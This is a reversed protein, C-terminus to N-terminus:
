FFWMMKQLVTPRPVVKPPDYRQLLAFEEDSMKYRLYCWLRLTKKESMGIQGFGLRMWLKQLKSKPEPIYLAENLTCSEETFDDWNKAMENISLGPYGNPPILRFHEILLYMERPDLIVDEYYFIQRDTPWMQRYFQINNLYCRMGNLRGKAMLVFMEVPDRILVVLRVGRCDRADLVQWDENQDAGGEGLADYTKEFAADPQDVKSILLRDGPTRQCCIKEVCFRVWNMGSEPAAALIPKM